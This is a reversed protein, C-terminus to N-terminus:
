FGEDYLKRSLAVYLRELDARRALDSKRKEKEREKGDKDKSGLPVHEAIWDFVNSLRDTERNVEEANTVTGRGDRARKMSERVRRGEREQSQPSSGLAPDDKDRYEETEGQAEASKKSSALNFVDLLGEVSGSLGRAGRMDWHDVEELVGLFEGWRASTVSVLGDNGGEEPACSADLIIKPLWLPHLISLGSIRGALSFYRVNPMDPTTPNFHNKLFFTTLNSYAPSDILGLLVTTFSSPLSALANAGILDVVSKEKKEEKPERPRPPPREFIPNKLSYPLSTPRPFPTSTRPAGIGINALCWDMFPSGRHPTSVTTLSVPTYETPRIHTILHRCDLGGMSHAMFNIERGKARTQLFSDLTEARTEISGTSPVAAVLVEAGVKNRLIDLVNSWYHMQLRPFSSPGRVDFGYLGHCLVIPHRPARVPNFLVPNAMLEHIPWTYPEREESPGAPTEPADNPRESTAPVRKLAPRSPPAHPADVDPQWPEWADDGDNHSQQQQHTHAGASFAVGLRRRRTATATATHARIADLHVWFRRFLSLFPIRFSLPVM